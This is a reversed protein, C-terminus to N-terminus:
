REQDQRKSPLPDDQVPKRKAGSRSQAEGILEDLGVPDDTEIGKIECAMREADISGERPSDEYVLCGDRYRRMGVNFGIDEDAWKIEFALEPNQRSLEEIVPEPMSWATDFRLTGAENEVVQTNPDNNWKTGWNETAWGYWTPFGHERYNDLYRKGLAILAEPSEIRNREAIKAILSDNLTFDPLRFRLTSKATRLAELFGNPGLLPDAFKSGNHPNMASLYANVAENIVSGEPVDLEKPMPVVKNFDFTGPMGDFAIQELLRERQEAPGIISVINTVYNPM